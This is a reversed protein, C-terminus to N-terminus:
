NPKDPPESPASGSLLFQELTDLAPGFIPKEGFLGATLAARLLAVPKM